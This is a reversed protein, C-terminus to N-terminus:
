CDQPGAALPSPSPGAQGDDTREAIALTVAQFKQEKFPTTDCGISAPVAGCRQM